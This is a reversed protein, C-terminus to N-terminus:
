ADGGDDEAIHDERVDALIQDAFERLEPTTEEAMRISPVFIINGNSDRKVTEWTWVKKPIYTSKIIRGNADKEGTPSPVQLTLQANFIVKAFNTFGGGTAYFVCPAYFKGNLEISFAPHDVGPKQQPQELLVLCTVSEQFNPRQATPGFGIWRTTAGIQEVESRHNFIRARTGAAYAEKSVNERWKLDLKLPIFRMTPVFPPKSTPDPEALLVEDAFVLQGTKFKQSMPGSGQVIKMSPFKVHERGWDGSLGGGSNAAFRSVEANPRTAVANTQAAPETTPTTAPADGSLGLAKKLDAVGVENAVKEVAANTADGPAPTNLAAAAANQASKDGAKRLTANIM